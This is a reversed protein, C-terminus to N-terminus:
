LVARQPLIAKLANAVHTSAPEVGSLAPGVAGRGNLHVGDVEQLFGGVTRLAISAQNVGGTLNYTGTGGAGTGFSAITGLITGDVKAVTQGVELAGNTVATVTLLNGGTVAGTINSGGMPGTSGMLAYLNPGDLVKGPYIAKLAVLAAAWGTQLLNYNATSGSAVSYVTLGIMVEYGRDLFFSAVSQLAAQYVAASSGLDTQGNQIYIIKREADIRGMEEHMRQCIGFPDFGIGRQAETFVTGGAGGYATTTLSELTWTCGGDVVTAGVTSPTAFDPASGATLLGPNDSNIFDFWTYTAGQVPRGQGSHMAFFNTGTTCRYVKTGSPNICDGAFGRDISGALPARLAFAKASSQRFQMQGAIHRVMGASGIAGNVIQLDYGWDWLEDFTKCWWGGAALTLAPAIPVNLSARRASQFALPYAAKDPLLVNGRENSQGIIGVAVREHAASAPLMDSFFKRAAAAVATLSNIM